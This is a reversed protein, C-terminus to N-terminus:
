GVIDLHSNTPMHRTHQGIILGDRCLQAYAVTQEACLNKFRARAVSELYFEVTTGGAADVDTVAWVAMM